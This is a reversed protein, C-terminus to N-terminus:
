CQHRRLTDPFLTVTAGANHRIYCSCQRGILGAPKYSSIPSWASPPLVSRRLTGSRTALQARRSRLLRTRRPNQRRVPLGYRASSCRICPHDAPVMPLAVVTEKMMPAPNNGHTLPHDLAEAGTDDQRTACHKQSGTRDAEAMDGFWPLEIWAIEDHPETPRSDTGSRDRCDQCMPEVEVAAEREAERQGPCADPPEGDGRDNLGLWRWPKAAATGSTTSLRDATITGKIQIPMRHRGSRGAGNTSAM